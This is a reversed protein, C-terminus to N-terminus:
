TKGRGKWCIASGDQSIVLPSVQGVTPNAIRVGDATKCFKIQLGM